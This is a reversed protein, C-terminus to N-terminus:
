FCCVHLMLGCCSVTHSIESVPQRIENKKLNICEYVLKLSNLAKSDLSDLVPDFEKRTAERISDVREKTIHLFFSHTLWEDDEQYGEDTKFEYFYTKDEPTQDMRLNAYGCFLSFNVLNETTVLIEKSHAFRPDDDDANLGSDPDSMMFVVAEGESNVTYVQDEPNDSGDSMSNTDRGNGGRRSDKSSKPEAMGEEVLDNLTVMKTITSGGELTSDGLSMDLSMSGDGLSNGAISIDEEQAVKKEPSAMADKSDAKKDEEDTKDTDIVPVNATDDGADKDNKGDDSKSDSTEANDDGEIKDKEKDDAGDEKGEGMAEEDKSDIDKQEGEDEDEGEGEVKSVEDGGTTDDTVGGNDGKEQGKEQEAESEKRKRVALEEMEEKVQEVTLGRKSAQKAIQMKRIKKKKLTAKHELAKLRNREEVELRLKEAKERRKVDIMDMMVFSFDQTHAHTYTHMLSHKLSDIFSFYIFTLSKCTHTTLMIIRCNTFDDVSLSISTYQYEIRTSASVRLHSRTETLRRELTEEMTAYLEVIGKMQSFSCESIDYQILTPGIYKDKGLEQGNAKLMGSGAEFGPVEDRSDLFIPEDAEGKKKEVKKAGLAAEFDSSLMEITEIDYLYKSLDEPEGEEEPPPIGAEENEQKAKLQLLHKEIQGKLFTVVINAAEAVYLHPDRGTPIGRHSNPAEYQIEGTVESQFYVIGRYDCKMIWKKNLDEETATPNGMDDRGPPPKYSLIEPEEWETEGSIAHQYFQRGYEDFEVKWQRSEMVNKRIELCLAKSAEQIQSRKARIAIEKEDLARHTLLLTPMLHGPPWLDAMQRREQSRAAKERMVTVISDAVKTRMPSVLREVEEEIGGSLKKVKANADDLESQLARVQNVMARNKSDLDAIRASKRDLISGVRQIGPTHGRLKDSDKLMQGMGELIQEAQEDLSEAVTSMSKSIAKSTDRWGKEVKKLANLETMTKNLTTECERKAFEVAKNKEKLKKIEALYDDAEDAKQMAQAVYLSEPIEERTEGTDMNEYYERGTKTKKQVWGGSDGSFASRMIDLENTMADLKTKCEEEVYLIRDRWETEMAVRALETKQEASSIINDREETIADIDRQLEDNLERLTDMEM